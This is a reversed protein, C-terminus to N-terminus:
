CSAARSCNNLLVVVESDRDTSTSAAQAQMLREVKAREEQVHMLTKILM